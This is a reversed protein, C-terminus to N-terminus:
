SPWGFVHHLLNYVIFAAAMFVAVSVLSRASLRGLGCVGHGSTCGGGLIAGFGVLVGGILLAPTSHSIDLPVPMGTLSGYLIPAAILGALFSFRWFKDGSIDNVIGVAIGSIGAVRGILAMLLVAALGILLGGALSSVLDFDAIM